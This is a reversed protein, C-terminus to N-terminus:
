VPWRLLTESAVPSLGLARALGISAENSSSASWLPVKGRVKIIHDIL